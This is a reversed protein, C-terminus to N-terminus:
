LSMAHKILMEEVRKFVHQPVNVEWDVVCLFSRVLNELERRKVGTVRACYSIGRYDPDSMVALSFAAAIVRHINLDHVTCNRAFRVLLIFMSVFTIPSCRGFRALRVLYEAVPVPSPREADFISPDASEVQEQGARRAKELLDAIAPFGPHYSSCSESVVDWVEAAPPMALPSGASMVTPTGPRRSLM